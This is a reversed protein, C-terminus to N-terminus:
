RNVTLLVRCSMTALDEMALKCFVCLEDLLEECDVTHGRLFHHAARDAIEVIRIGEHGPVPIRDPREETPPIAVAIRDVVFKL